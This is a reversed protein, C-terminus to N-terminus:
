ARRAAEGIATREEASLKLTFVGTKAKGSALRPRGRGRTDSPTVTAGWRSSGRRSRQPDVADPLYQGGDRPKRPTDRPPRCDWAAGFADLPGGDSCGSCRGAGRSSPERGDYKLYYWYYFGAVRTENQRSIMSKQRAIDPRLSRYAMALFRSRNSSSAGPSAGSLAWQM